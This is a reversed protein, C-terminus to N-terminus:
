STCYNVPNCDAKIRGSLPKLHHYGGLHTLLEPRYYELLFNINLPMVRNTDEFFGYKENEKWVQDFGPDFVTLSCDAAGERSNKGSLGFIKRNGSKKSNSYVAFFPIGKNFCYEIAKPMTKDRSFTIFPVGEVKVQFPQEYVLHKRDIRGFEAKLNEYKGQEYLFWYNESGRSLGTEFTMIEPKTDGLRKLAADTDDNKHSLGFLDVRFKQM